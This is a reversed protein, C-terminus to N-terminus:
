VSEHDIKRRCTSIMSATNTHGLQQVRMFCTLAERYDRFGLILTVGKDFWADCGEPNLSVAMNFCQLADGFRRLEGLCVGKGELATCAQRSRAGEGGLWGAAQQGGDQAAAGILGHEPRRLSAGFSRAQRPRPARRPTQAL